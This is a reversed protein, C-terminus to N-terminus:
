HLEVDLSLLGHMMMNHNYDPEQNDCLHIDPFAALLANVALRAELRAFHNGLCFRIGHGFGLHPRPFRREIDFQLPNEYVNPDRNAAGNGVFLMDGARDRSM